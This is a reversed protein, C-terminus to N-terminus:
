GHAGLQCAKDSTLATLPPLWVPAFPNPYTLTLSGRPGLAVIQPDVSYDPRPSHLVMPVSDGPPEVASSPPSLTDSGGCGRPIYRPLPLASLPTPPMTQSSDTIDIIYRFGPGSPRMPNSKPCSGSEPCEVNWIHVTGVQFHLIQFGEVNESVMPNSKPCCPTLSPAAELNQVIGCEMNHVTGVQFHLIQFGEVNESVMPNSKPLKWIRSLEVNWITSLELKSTYFKSGKWMQKVTTNLSPAAELNMPNSKPLKWIRSLEMIMPNSKPCSGSEPCNWMGYQPCDLISTCFKSGKWM